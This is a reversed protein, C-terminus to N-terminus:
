LSCHYLTLLFIYIEQLHLGLELVM